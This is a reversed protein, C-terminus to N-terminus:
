KFPPLSPLLFIGQEPQEQQAVQFDQEAIMDQQLLDKNGDTDQSLFERKLNKEAGAIAEQETLQRLLEQELETISVATVTFICIVSFLFAFCCFAKM